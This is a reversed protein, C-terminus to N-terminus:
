EDGSVIRMAGRRGRARSVALGAVLALLTAAAALAALLFANDSLFSGIAGAGAGVLAAGLIFPLLCPLCILLPLGLLWWKGPKENSEM